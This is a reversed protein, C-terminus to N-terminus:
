ENMLAKLVRWLWRRAGVVFIALGALVMLVGLISGAGSNTCLNQASASGTGQSTLNCLNSVDSWRVHVVIGWVMFLLGALGVLFSLVSFKQKPPTAHDKPTIGTFGPPCQWNGHQPPDLARAVPAREAWAAMAEAKRALPWTAIPAAEVHVRFWIGYIPPDNCVGFLLAGGAAIFTVGATDVGRPPQGAPGERWGAPAISPVAIPVAVPTGFAPLEGGPLAAAAVAAGCLPCRTLRAPVQHGHSCITM